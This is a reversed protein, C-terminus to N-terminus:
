AHLGSDSIFRRPCVMQSILDLDTQPTMGGQLVGHEKGM